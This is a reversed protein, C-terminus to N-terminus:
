SWGASGRCERRVGPLRLEADGNGGQYAVFWAIAAAIGAQVALLGFLRLRWARTRLARQVRARLRDFRAERHDAPEGAAASEQHACM